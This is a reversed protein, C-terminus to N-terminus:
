NRANRKLLNITKYVAQLSNFKTVLNLEKYLGFPIGPVRVVQTSSYCEEGDGITILLVEHRNKELYKVIKEVTRVVGNVQPLFTETLIAVRM